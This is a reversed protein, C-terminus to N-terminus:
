KTYAEFADDYEKAAFFEDGQANYQEATVGRRVPPRPRRVTTSRTSTRKNATGGRSTSGSAVDKTAGSGVDHQAAVIGATLFIAGALALRSLSCFSIMATVGHTLTHPECECAVSGIISQVVVSALAGFRPVRGCLDGLVSPLMSTALGRRPKRDLYHHNSQRSQHHLSRPRIPGVLFENERDCPIRKPCLLTHSQRSPIRTASQM